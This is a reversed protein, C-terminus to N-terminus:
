RTWNLHLTVFADHDLNVYAGDVSWTGNVLRGEFTDTEWYGYHKDLTVPEGVDKWV